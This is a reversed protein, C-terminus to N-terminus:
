ELPTRDSWNASVVIFFTMKIMEVTTTRMPAGDIGVPGRAHFDVPRRPVRRPRRWFGEAAAGSTVKLSQVAFSAVSLWYLPLTTNTLKQAV